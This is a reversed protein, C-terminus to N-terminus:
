SNVVQNFWAEARPPVTDIMKQFKDKYEQLEKKVSQLETTAALLDKQLKSNQAAQEKNATQLETFEARLESIM